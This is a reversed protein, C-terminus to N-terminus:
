SLGLICLSMPQTYNIYPLFMYASPDFDFQYSETTVEFNITPMAHYDGNNCYCSYTDKFGPYSLDQPRMLDCTYAPVMFLEMFFDHFFFPLTMGRNWTDIVLAQPELEQKIPPIYNSVKEMVYSGKLYELPPAFNMEKYGEMIGDKKTFGKNNWDFGEDRGVCILNEYDTVNGGIAFSEGGNFAYSELLGLAAM